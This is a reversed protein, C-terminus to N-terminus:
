GGTADRPDFTINVQQWDDYKNPPLMDYPVCRLVARRGSEAVARAMPADGMKVVTVSAVMGNQNLKVELRATSDGQDMGGPPPNWCSYIKAKLADYESQSLKGKGQGRPSGLAVPDKSSATGGGSPAAKNLLAAIKDPSFKSKDNQDATKAPQQQAKKLAAAAADAASESPAPKPPPPKKQPPPPPPPTPAPAEEQPAEAPAEPTPPTPEQPPPPPPPPTAEKPPAPTPEAPPPPPPAADPEAATKTTEPTPPAQQPTTANGVDDGARDKHATDLPSAQPVEKLPATKSGKHVNTTESIPVLDVPMADIPPAALPETRPLGVLIWLLIAAHGVTSAIVGPDWRM